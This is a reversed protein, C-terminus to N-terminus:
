LRLFLNLQQTSVVNSFPSAVQRHFHIPASSQRGHRTRLRQSSEDKAASPPPAQSSKLLLSEADSPQPPSETEAAPPPAAEAAPPRSGFRQRSALPRRCRPLCRPTTQLVYERTCLPKERFKVYTRPPLWGSRVYRILHNLHLKHM